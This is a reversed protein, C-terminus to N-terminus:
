RYYGRRGYYGRGAGYFRSRALYHHRDYFHPKGYYGAHRRYEVTRVLSHAPRPAGDTSEARAPAVVFLVSLALTAIACRRKVLKLM